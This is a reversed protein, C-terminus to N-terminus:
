WFIADDLDRLQVLRMRTQAQEVLPHHALHAFRKQVVPLQHGQGSVPWLAAQGPLKLHDVAELPQPGRAFEAPHQETHADQRKGRRLCFRRDPDQIVPATQRLQLFRPQHAREIAVIRECLGLDPADEPPVLAPNAPQITCASGAQGRM